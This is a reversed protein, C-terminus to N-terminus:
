SAPTISSSSKLWQLKCYAPLAFCLPVSSVLTLPNMVALLFTIWLVVNAVPMQYKIWDTCPSFILKSFVIGLPIGYQAFYDLIFSHKGVTMYSLSGWIPSGFILGIDRTYREYRTAFESDEIDAGYVLADRSDMLKRKILPIDVIDILFDLIGEINIFILFVFIGILVLAGTNLGKNYKDALIMLPFILITLILAIFYQSQYALIISSIVFYYLIFKRIFTHKQKVMYIGIPLMSLVSYMYGYGGAYKGGPGTYGKSVLDRMIRPNIQIAMLTTTNWICYLSIAFLLLLELQKINTGFKQNWLSYVVCTLIIIYTGIRWSFANDEIYGTFAMYICLGIGTWFRNKLSSINNNFSTVFITGTAVFALIRYIAGSALPPSICWAILYLISIYSIKENM